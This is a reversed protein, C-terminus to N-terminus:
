LIGQIHMVHMGSCADVCVDAFIRICAGLCESRDEGCERLADMNLDSAQMWHMGGGHRCWNESYIEM